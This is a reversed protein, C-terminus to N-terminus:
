RAAITRRCHLSPMDNAGRATLADPAWSTRNRNAVMAPHLSLVRASSAARVDGM